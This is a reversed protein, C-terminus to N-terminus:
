HGSPGECDWVKRADIYTGDIAVEVHVQPAQRVLNGQVRRVANGTNGTGGLITGKEVSDDSRVDRHSLHAM